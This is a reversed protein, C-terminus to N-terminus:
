ISKVWKSRPLKAVHMFMSVSFARLCGIKKQLLWVGLKAPAKRCSADDRGLCPSMAPDLWIYLEVWSEEGRKETLTGQIHINCWINKQLFSQGSGRPIFSVLFPAAYAARFPWTSLSFYSALSPSHTRTDTGKCVHQPNWEGQQYKRLIRTIGTINGEPGATEVNCDSIFHPHISLIHCSSILPTELHM